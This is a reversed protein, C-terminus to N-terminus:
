RESNRLVCIKIRDKEEYNQLEDYKSTLVSVDVHKALNKALLYASIEGGGYVVPPFYETVLLVKLVM